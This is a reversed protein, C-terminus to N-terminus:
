KNLKKKRPTMIPLGLRQLAARNAPTDDLTWKRTKSGLSVPLGGTVGCNRLLRETQRHSNTRTEIKNNNM